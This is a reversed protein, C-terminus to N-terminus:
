IPLINQKKWSTGVPSLLTQLSQEGAVHTELEFPNPIDNVYQCFNKAFNKNPAKKPNPYKPRFAFNVSSNFDQELKSLELNHKETVDTNKGCSALSLLVATFFITFKM